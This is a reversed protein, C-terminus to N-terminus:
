CLLDYNLEWVFYMVHYQRVYYGYDSFILQRIFIKDM